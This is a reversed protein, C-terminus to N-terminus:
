AIISIKSDEILPLNNLKLYLQATAVVDGRCYKAIRDLGNEENYYVDNVQSGTIDSKSSPIGFIGTLLELSSYNKRDGFKWMEMTDIHLVEWPKKASLDLADPIKIGNILWRRCLYPFDFEKGNHACLRLQDQDFKSRLFDAFEGLLQKENDSQFSKVRIFTDGEEQYFIGVGIVIVKGFEAYIGAREFYLEDVDLENENRIFQAKNSWLKRIGEPLDSFNKEQSITEIDLVLVNKLEHHM